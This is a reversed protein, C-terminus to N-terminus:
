QRKRLQTGPTLKHQMGLQSATETRQQDTTAADLFSSLPTYPISLTPLPSAPASFATAPPLFIALPISLTATQPLPTLDSNQFPESKVTNEVGLYPTGDEEVGEEPVWVSVTAMRSDKYEIDLGVVMRVTGCSGLIYDEALRELDKRKQSFSTEIVLCPYRAEVHRFSADPSRKTSENGDTTPNGELIIRSTGRFTISTALTSITPDPTRLAIQRLLSEIECIVNATFINHTPINRIKDQVYGWLDEEELREVLKKYEGRQLRIGVWSCDPPQGRKMARIIQLARNISRSFPEAREKGSSDPPSPLSSSRTSEKPPTRTLM